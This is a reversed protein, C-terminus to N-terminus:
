KRLSLELIYEQAKENRIKLALSLDQITKKDVRSYDVEGDVLLKDNKMLCYQKVLFDFILIDSEPKPLEAFNQRTYDDFLQDAFRSKKIINEDFVLHARNFDNQTDIDISDEQSMIFAVCGESLLFTKEDKLLTTDCIYIAGNLQYYKPLDQSRVNHIEKSLFSTMSRDEPLTNCWLPHHDAECVSVIANQNAEVLEKFAEDIHRVTRLPSTPQLLIVYDYREGKEELVNLLHLIVDVMTINDRALEDPRLFPIDAGLSRAVNLIEKDETSVIVRDIYKSENAAEITWGILPKGFLAEVNKRSLRKSGGRAPIVALVKKNDIM